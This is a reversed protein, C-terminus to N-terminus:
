LVILDQAIAWQRSIAVYKQRAAENQTQGFNSATAWLSYGFKGCHSM